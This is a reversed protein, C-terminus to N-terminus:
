NFPLVPNAGRVAAPPSQGQQLGAQQGEPQPQQGHQLAALREMALQRVFHLLATHCFVYQDRTQVMGLRQRRCPIPRTPHPPTPPCPPVHCRLPRLLRTM